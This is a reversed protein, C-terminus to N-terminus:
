VIKRPFNARTVPLRKVATNIYGLSEKQDAGFVGVRAKELKHTTATFTWKQLRKCGRNNLIESNAYVLRFDTIRLSGAKSIALTRTRPASWFFLPSQPCSKNQVAHTYSSLSPGRFQRQQPFEAFHRRPYDFTDFIDFIRKM